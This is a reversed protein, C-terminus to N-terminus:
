WRDLVMYHKLDPQKDSVIQGSVEVWAHARMPAMHCGVVLKAPIGQRRLLRTVAASRQLCRPHKFYWVGARVVAETIESVNSNARSPAQIPTRTVSRQVARFGRLLVFDVCLLEIWARATMAARV